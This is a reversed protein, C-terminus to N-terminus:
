EVKRNHVWIQEYHEHQGNTLPFYESFKDADTTKASDGPHCILYINHLKEQYIMTWFDELIKSNLLPLQALVFKRAIDVEVYSAHIETKDLKVRNKDLVEVHEAQNYDDEMHGLFAQIDRDEIDDELEIEKWYNQLNTGCKTSGLQRLIHSCAEAINDNVHPKKASSGKLSGICIEALQVKNTIVSADNSFYEIPPCKYIELYKLKNEKNLSDIDFFYLSLIIAGGFYCFSYYLCLSIKSELKYRISSIASHRNQFLAIVSMGILYASFQGIYVTLKFPVGIWSFIGHISVVPAPLYLVPSGLSNVMVDLLLSTLQIHLMQWKVNKMKDPTIKIILYLCYTTLPVAFVTSIHLSTILFEKTEFFSFQECHTYNNALYADM